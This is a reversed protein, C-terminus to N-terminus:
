EDTRRLHWRTLEILAMYPEAKEFDATSVYHEFLRFCAGHYWADYRNGQVCMDVVWKLHDVCVKDIAPQDLLTQVDRPLMGARRCPSIAFLRKQGSLGEAAFVGVNFLATAARGTGPFPGLVLQPADRPLVNGGTGYEGISSDLAPASNPTTLIAVGDDALYGAILSVFEDPDPVHEIVESSVIAQFSHEPMMGPSLYGHVVKVDLLRKGLYGAAGLELQRRGLRPTPRNRVDIGRRRRYRSLPTSHRAWGRPAVAQALHVMKAFIVVGASMEFHYQYAPWADHIKAPDPMYEFTNGSPDFVTECQPCALFTVDAARNEPKANNRSPPSRRQRLHSM